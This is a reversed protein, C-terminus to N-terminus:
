CQGAGYPGADLGASLRKRFTTTITDGSLCDLSSVANKYSLVEPVEAGIRM